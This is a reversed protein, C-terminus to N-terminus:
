GHRDQPSSYVVCAPQVQPDDLLLVEGRKSWSGRGITLMKEEDLLGAPIWHYLTPSKSIDFVTFPRRAEV